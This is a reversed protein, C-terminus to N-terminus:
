CEHCTYRNPCDVNIFSKDATMPGIMDVYKTSGDDNLTDKVVEIGILNKYELMTCMSKGLDHLVDTVENAPISSNMKDACVKGVDGSDQYVLYGTKYYQHVYSAFDM